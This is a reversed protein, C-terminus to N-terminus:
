ATPEMQLDPQNGVCHDIHSLNTPPMIDNFVEKHHHAKFGPLFPGKYDVHEVFTHVTDGYTQISAVITTGQEDKLEEPERVSKAGRSVAKEYISKCDDVTFAVDHVGDGHKNLSETFETNGPNLPSTFAFLVKGNKV